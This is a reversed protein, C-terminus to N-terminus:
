VRPRSAYLVAFDLLSLAFYGCLADSALLYGSAPTIGGFTAAAAIGVEVDLRLKATVALYCELLVIPYAYRARKWVLRILLIVVPWALYSATLPQDYAHEESVRGGGLHCTTLPMTLALLLIGAVVWKAALLCVRVNMGDANSM